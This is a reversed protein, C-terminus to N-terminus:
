IGTQRASHRADSSRVTALRTNSRAARALFHAFVGAVKAVVQRSTSLLLPTTGVLYIVVNMKRGREREKVRERKSEDLAQCARECPSATM